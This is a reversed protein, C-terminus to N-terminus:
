SAMGMTQLKKSIMSQMMQLQDTNMHDLELELVEPTSELPNELSLVMAAAQEGASTFVRPGPTHVIDLDAVQDFKSNMQRLWELRDEVGDSASPPPLPLTRLDPSSLM